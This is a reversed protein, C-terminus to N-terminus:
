PDLYGALVAARAFLEDADATRGLRQLEAATARLEDLEATVVARLDAEDLARRAVESTGFAVPLSSQDPADVAEANALAALASRLVSTTLRDQAKMAATLDAQM